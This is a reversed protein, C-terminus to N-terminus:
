GLMGRERAKRRGALIGAIGRLDRHSLCLLAHGVLSLRFATDRVVGRKLITHRQYYKSYVLERFKDRTDPNRCVTSHNHTLRAAPWYFNTYRQAVQYSIMVDECWFPHDEDFDIQELASRRYCMFCGSLVQVPHAQTDTFTRAGEGSLRFRGNGHDYAVFFVYRLPWELLSRLTPFRPGDANLQLGTLGGINPYACFGARIQALCDPELLVDDDFYCIIECQTNALGAKRQAILNPSTRLHKVVLRGTDKLPTLLAEADAKTGADVIILEDPDETQGALTHLFRELDADRNM